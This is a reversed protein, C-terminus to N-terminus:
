AQDGNIYTSNAQAIAQYYSYTVVPFAVATSFSSTTTGSVTTLAGGSDTYTGAADINGTVAMVGGSSPGDLTFNGGAYMNGVVTGSSGGTGTDISSNGGSAFVYDFASLGPATVEATATQTVGNLTATSTVKTRSSATTVSAQYTGGGLSTSPYTTSTTWTTRLRGLADALGADAIYKAQTRYQIQKVNYLGQDAMQYMYGASLIMLLAAMMTTAFVSGRENQIRM